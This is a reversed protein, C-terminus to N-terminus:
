RLTTGASPGDPPLTSTITNLWGYVHDGTYYWLGAGVVACGALFSANSTMAQGSEDQLLQKLRQM